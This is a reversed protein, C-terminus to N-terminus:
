VTRQCSSTKRSSNGEQWQLRGEVPFEGVDGRREEGNRKHDLKGGITGEEWQPRSESFSEYMVEERKEM